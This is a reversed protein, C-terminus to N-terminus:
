STCGFTDISDVSPGITEVRGGVSDAEDKKETESDDDREHSPTSNGKEAVTGGV